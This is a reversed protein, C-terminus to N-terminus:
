EIEIVLDGVGDRKGMIGGIFSYISGSPRSYETANDM